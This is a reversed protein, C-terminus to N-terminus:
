KERTLHSSRRKRRLDRHFTDLAFRTSTNLATSRPRPAFLEKGKARQEGDSVRRGSISREMGLLLSFHQVESAPARKSRNRLLDRDRARRWVPISRSSGAPVFFPPM